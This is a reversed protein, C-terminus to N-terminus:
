MKQSYNTRQSSPKQNTDKVISLLDAIKRNFDYKLYREKAEIESIKGELFLIRNEYKSLCRYTYVINLTVGAIMSFIGIYNTYNTDCYDDM